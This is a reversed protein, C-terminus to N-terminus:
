SIELREAFQLLDALNALLLCSPSLNATEFSGYGHRVLAVSIGAAIGSEYDELTDGIYLCTEPNLHHEAVISRLMEAKSSFPPQRSDRSVVDTFYPALRLEDLIIRTPLAPKNTAVYLAIGAECLTKVTFVANAHPLTRQWAGGDYCCRFAAQLGALQDESANPVIRQFIQRIPPGIMSRLSVTRPGLQMQALAQDVAGEIGPLSDVLTGDLDFLIARYEM